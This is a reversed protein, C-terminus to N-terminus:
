RSGRRDRPSGPDVRRHHPQSPGRRNRRQTQPPGGELLPLDRSSRSPRDGRVGTREPGPAGAQLLSGREGRPLTPRRDRRARDRREPDHGRHGPQEGGGRRGARLPQGDGYPQGRLRLLARDRRVRLRRGRPRRDGRGARVPVREPGVGGGVHSATSGRDARIRARPFRGHKGM